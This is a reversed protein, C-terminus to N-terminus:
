PPAFSSIEVKNKLYKMVGVATIKEFGKLLSFKEVTIM